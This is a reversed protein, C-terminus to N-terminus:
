AKKTIIFNIGEITAQMALNAPNIIREGDFLGVQEGNKLIIRCKSRKDPTVTLEQFINKVSRGTKWAALKIKEGSRANQLKFELSHGKTKGTPRISWVAEGDRLFGHSGSGILCGSDVSNLQQAFQLFRKTKIDPRKKTISFHGAEIVVSLESSINFSAVDASETCCHTVMKDLLHRSLRLHETQQEVHDVLRYILSKIVYRAALRDMQRLKASSVLSKAASPVSKLLEKGIASAEQAVECINRRANPAIAELLPLIAHRIKNRTYDMKDNSLDIRFDQQLSSLYDLIENKPTGLFPRWHTGNWLQMGPLQSASFGRILRFIVTEALDDMHHGTAIIWGQQLFERQIKLRENRAWEQVSNADNESKSVRRVELPINLDSCLTRCFTEDGESDSGRLGFNLHFARTQFNKKRKTFDSFVRLLATSDPGGSLSVVVGQFSDSLDPKIGTWQLELNPFNSVLKPLM